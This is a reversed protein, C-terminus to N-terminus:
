IAIVNLGGEEGGKAFMTGYVVNVAAMAADMPQGKRRKALYYGGDSGAAKVTANMVHREFVDDCYHLRQQRILDYLQASSGSRRAGTQWIEEVLLGENSLDQRMLKSHWPDFVNTLVTFEANLERVFAKVEAQPVEWGEVPQGGPGVPPEWTRARLYLCPEETHGCPREDGDFWQAWDVATADRTESLDVGVWTEGGPRLEFGDVRCAQIQERTVWPSAGYDIWRNLYLREFEAQTLAKKGGGKEGSSNTGALEGELFPITVSIGLNPMAAAWARPDRYDMGEPAEWWRFFFGDDSHEGREMSRGALYLGGCRSGEIDTGATTIMIMMPQDRAAMGTTLAAWLEDAEGVGWAHVEDLIVCHINLGHKTRGKSTLRKMTSYPDIKSTLYDAKEGEPVEVLTSLPAGDIECMRRAAMFVRDAQDESAAACYVESSKEGDAVLFYLALAAALETKGQKRGMGILARRYRRLGTERNVEFLEYLLRKQWGELIFPLGTWKANSFVCMTEIFKIVLGGTTWFQRDGVRVLVAGPRPPATTTM